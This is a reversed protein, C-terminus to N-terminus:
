TFQYAIDELGGGGVLIISLITQLMYLTISTITHTMYVIKETLTGIQLLGSALLGEGETTVNLSGSFM